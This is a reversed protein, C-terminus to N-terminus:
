VELELRHQHMKRYASRVGIGLLRATKSQNGQARETAAALVQRECERIARSLNWDVSDLNLWVITGNHDSTRHAFDRDRPNGDSSFMGAARDPSSLRRLADEPLDNLELEVDSHNNLHNALAACLLYEVERANGPLDFKQVAEVFDQSVIPPPEANISHHRRMFHEILLSVDSPRERLAPIRVAFMRLRHFLDARFKQETVLRELDRNTAAIIRVNVPLEHEEGIGLVSKEQLVRLLKAQLGLDLEGIEDLFLVGGEAARILGKRNRDAGTFAGRRHGFFESELLGPNVAACNVAVFLGKTRKPDLRHIARALLEKGTGTEGTILVPLDSMKSVQIAKRFLALM